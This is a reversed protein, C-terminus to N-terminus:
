LVTLSQLILRLTTVKLYMSIWFDQMKHFCNPRTLHRDPEDAQPHAGLGSYTGAHQQQTGLALCEIEQKKWQQRCQNLSLSIPEYSTVVCPLFVDM